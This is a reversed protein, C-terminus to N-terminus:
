TGGWKLAFMTADGADKFIWHGGQRRYEGHLNREAWTVVDVSHHRSQYVIDVRNWGFRCLVDALIEFDMADRLDRGATAEIHKQLNM